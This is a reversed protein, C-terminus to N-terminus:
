KNLSKLHGRFMGIPYKSVLMWKNQFVIVVKFFPIGPDWSMNTYFAIFSSIFCSVAALMCAKLSDLGYGSKFCAIFVRRFFLHCLSHSLRGLLLNFSILGFIERQDELMGLFLSTIMVWKLIPWLLNVCRCKSNLSCGSSQGCQRKKIRVMRWKSITWTQM